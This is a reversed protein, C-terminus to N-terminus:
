GQHALDTRPLQQNEPLDLHLNLGCEGAPACSPKKVGEEQPLLSLMDPGSPATFLSTLPPRGGEGKPGM